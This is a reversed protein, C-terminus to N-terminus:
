SNSRRKYAREGPQVHQFSSALVPTQPHLSHSDQILQVRYRSWVVVLSWDTWGKGDHRLDQFLLVEHFRQLILGTGLQDAQGFSLLLEALQVFIVNGVNSATGPLPDGFALELEHIASPVTGSKVIVADETGDEFTTRIRWGQGEIERRGAQAEM